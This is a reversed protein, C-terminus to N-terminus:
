QISKMHTAKRTGSSPLNWLKGIFVLRDVHKGQGLKWCVQRRLDDAYRVRPDF